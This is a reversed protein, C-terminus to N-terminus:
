VQVDTDLDTVQDALSDMPESSGYDEESGDWDLTENSNREITFLSLNSMGSVEEDIEEVIFKKL